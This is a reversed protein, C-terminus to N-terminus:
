FNIQVSKTLLCTRVDELGRLLTPLVSTFVDTKEKDALTNKPEFRPNEAKAKQLCKVFVEVEKVNYISVKGDDLILNSGFDFLIDKRETRSGTKLTELITSM